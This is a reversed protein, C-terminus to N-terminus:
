SGRRRGEGARSSGYARTNWARAADQPTGYSYAFTVDSIPCPEADDGPPHVISFGLGSWPDLLYSEARGSGLLGKPNGEDDMVMLDVNESGCFPCPEMRVERTYRM